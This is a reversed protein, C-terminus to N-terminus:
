NIGKIWVGDHRAELVKEMQEDDTLGPEDNRIHITLEGSYSNTHRTREDQKGQILVMEEQKGDERLRNFSVAGLAVSRGFKPSAVRIKPPDDITSVVTVENGEYEIYGYAMDIRGSTSLPVDEGEPEMVMLVDSEHMVFMREGFADTEQGVHPSFFIVDGVKVDGDTATGVAVVTGSVETDGDITDPLYIGGETVKSKEVPKVLIKNGTLKM